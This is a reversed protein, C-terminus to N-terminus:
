AADRFGQSQYAICESRHRGTKAKQLDAIAMDAEVFRGIWVRKARKAFGDALNLRHLKTWGKHDVRAIDRMEGPSVLEVISLLDDALGLEVNVVNGALVVEHILTHALSIEVAVAFSGLPLTPVAEVVMADVEDPEDIHNIELSAAKSPKSGVLEGPEGVIELVL